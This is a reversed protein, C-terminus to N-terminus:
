NYRFKGNAGDETTEVFWLGNLNLSDGLSPQGNNNSDRTVVSINSVTADMNDRLAYWTHPTINYDYAYLGITDNSYTVSVIWGTQGGSLGNPYQNNLTNIANEPTEYGTGSFNGYVHFSSGIPGLNIWQVDYTNGDYDTYPRIYYDVNENGVALRNRIEPDSYLVILNDGIKDIAKVTNLNGIIQSVPEESGEEQKKKYNVILNQSKTIDNPLVISDVSAIDFNYKSGNTLEIYLKGEDEKYEISEIDNLTTLYEPNNRDDSYVVYVKNDRDTFIYDINKFNYKDSQKSTYSVSITDVAPTGIKIIRWVTNNLEIEYGINEKYADNIFHEDESINLSIEVQGGQVCLLYYEDSDDLAFLNGVEVTLPEQVTDININQREKEEDLLYTVNEIVNYKWFGLPLSVEGEAQNKYTRIYYVLYQYSNNLNSIQNIIDKEEQSLNEDNEELYEAVIDEFTGTDTETGLIIALQQNNIQGTELFYGIYVLLEHKIEYGTKKDFQIIDDGHIGKPIAINYSYYFPQDAAPGTSGHLYSLGSYTKTQPNYDVTYSQTIGRRDAFQISEGYPSIAMGQIDIVPYPIQFGIFAGTRNGDKDEISYSGFKYRNNSKWYGPMTEDELTEPDDSVSEVWEIGPVSDLENTIAVNGQQEINAWSTAQLEPANGEPGVIQGVYIAGAGPNIIYNRWVAVWKDTNFVKSKIVTITQEEQRKVPNGDEDLVPIMVPIGDQDVMPEGTEPDTAQQMVDIQVIITQDEYEIDYFENSKRDPREGAVEQNYDFGRRYLIGNASDNRHNENLITDIIVYQGYNVETYAGGKSFENVMGKIQVVKTTDTLDDTTLTGAGGPLVLYAKGNYSFRDGSEYDEKTTDLANLSQIDIYIEDFRAVINYTRGQKGGYFSSM